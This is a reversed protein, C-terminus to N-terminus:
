IPEIHCTLPNVWSNPTGEMDSSGKPPNENFKVWINRETLCHKSGIVLSQLILTLTM